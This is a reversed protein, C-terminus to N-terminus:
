GCLAVLAADCGWAGGARDEDELAEPGLGRLSGATNYTHVGDFVGVTVASDANDLVTAEESRILDTM